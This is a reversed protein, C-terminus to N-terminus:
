INNATAPLRLGLCVPFVSASDLTSATWRAITGSAFIDRESIPESLNISCSGSFTRVLMTMTSDGRGGFGAQGLHPAVDRIANSNQLFHLKLIKSRVDPIYWFRSYLDKTSM